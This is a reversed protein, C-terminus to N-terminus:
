MDDFMTAPVCPIAGPEWLKLTVVGKQAQFALSTQSGIMNLLELASTPEKIVICVNNTVTRGLWDVQKPDTPLRVVFTIGAHKPDAFKIRASLDAIAAPATANNWNVGDIIVSALQRLTFPDNAGPQESLKQMTQERAYMRQWEAEQEATMIRGQAFHLPIVICMALLAM